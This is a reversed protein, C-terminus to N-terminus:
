KLQVLYAVLAERESPKLLFDPMYAGPKIQQPHNLWRGLNPATNDMLGTLLTKRSSLHTLDPGADGKAETGAIRHCNGCTKEQFVTAGRQALEGAPAIAPAAHAALWAKYESETQAVVRIRMWAHQQGCFESCAGEYVGPKRITLWLHNSRGPILDMKNGLEPVWWDHIVDASRLRMLVKRGVPLHIENAAVVGTGPYDAQWWWQHGTIIVDPHQTDAEPELARMDRLTLVFFFSVLALPIGVIFLEAKRSRFIKPPLTNDGLKARYKVLFIITLLTVVLLIAAAAVFFYNTLTAIREAQESAPTLM